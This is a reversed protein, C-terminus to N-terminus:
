PWYVRALRIRVLQYKGNPPLKKKGSQNSTYRHRYIMEETNIYYYRERRHLNQVLPNMLEMKGRRKYDFISDREGDLGESKILVNKGNEFDEAIGILRAEM